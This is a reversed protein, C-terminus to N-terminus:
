KNKQLEKICDILSHRYNPIKLNFREKIKSNDLLSYKPRKTKSSYEETTTRYIKTNYGSIEKISNAFDFWSIKGMSSFNYIGSFWKKNNIIKFIVRALDKAYTPSGVQDDIVSIFSKKKMLEYMTKVFNKGYSSYVWSTRIIISKPDNKVCVREGCLKSYGYFNIPDPQSDEKLPNSSNGNFVYDTSIHILKKKNNSTWKSIVDVAEFNIVNALEREEEAKDVNTYAACNIILDPFIESIKTPLNKLDSLDLEDIDTFIWEINRFNNAFFRIENGLQGNSGTVLIKM